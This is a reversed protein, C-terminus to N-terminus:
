YSFCLFNVYPGMHARACDRTCDLAPTGEITKLPRKLLSGEFIHSRDHAHTRNLAPPHKITRKITHDLTTVFLSHFEIQDTDNEEYQLSNTRSNPWDKGCDKPHKTLKNWKVKRVILVLCCGLSLTVSRMMPIGQHRDHVGWVGSPLVESKDNKQQEKERGRAMFVSLFPNVVSEREKDAYFEGYDDHPSNLINNIGLFDVYDVDEGNFNPVEGPLDEDVDEDNAIDDEEYDAIDDEGYDSIDDTLEEDESQDDEDLYLGSFMPHLGYDEYEEKLDFAL